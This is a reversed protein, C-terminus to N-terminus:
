AFVVSIGQDLYIKVVHVRESRHDISSIKNKM